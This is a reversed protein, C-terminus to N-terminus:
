FTCRVNRWFRSLSASGYQGDQLFWPVVDVCVVRQLTANRGAECFITSKRSQSQSISNSGNSSSARDLCVVFFNLIYIGFLGAFYTHSFSFFKGLMVSFQVKVPDSSDHLLGHTGTDPPCLFPRDESGFYICHERHLISKKGDLGMSQLVKELAPDKAPDDYFLSNLAHRVVRRNGQPPGFYMDILQAASCQFLGSTHLAPFIFIEHQPTRHRFAVHQTLHRRAYLITKVKDATSATQQMGHRMFDKDFISPAQARLGNINYGQVAALSGKLREPHSGPDSIDVATDSSNWFPTARRILAHISGPEAFHESKKVSKTSVRARKKKQGTESEPETAREGGNDVEADDVDDDHTGDADDDARAEKARAEEARAARKEAAVQSM